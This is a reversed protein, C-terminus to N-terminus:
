NRGRNLMDLEEQCSICTTFAPNFALRKLGIEDGCNLCNGFAGENIRKIALEIKVLNEKKRELVKVATRAIIKAQIEDTEDGSHDVEINSSNKIFDVIETKESQLLDKFKNIQMKKM